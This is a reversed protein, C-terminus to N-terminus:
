NAMSFKSLANGDGFICTDLRMFANQTYAQGLLNFSTSDTLMLDFYSCFGYGISGLSLSTFTVIIVGAYILGYITWGLHVMRRCISLEFLHTALVGLLAILSGTIAFAFIGQFASLGM